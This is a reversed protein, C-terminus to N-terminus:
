KLVKIEFIKLKKTLDDLIEPYEYIESLHKPKAYESKNDSYGLFIIKNIDYKKNSSLSQWHISRKLKSYVIFNNTIGNEVIHLILQNNGIYTDGLKEREIIANRVKNIKINNKFFKCLTTAYEFLADQDKLNIIVVAEKINSSM